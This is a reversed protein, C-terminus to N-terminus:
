VREFSTLSIPTGFLIIISLAWAWTRPWNRFFVLFASQLTFCDVSSWVSNEFAASDAILSSFVDVPLFSVALPHGFLDHSSQMSISDNMRDCVAFALQCNCPCTGCVKVIVTQCYVLYTDVYRRRRIPCYDRFLVSIILYFSFNSVIKLLNM